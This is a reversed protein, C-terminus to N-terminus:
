PWKPDNSQVRQGTRSDEVIVYVPDTFGWICYESVTNSTSYREWWGPLYSRSSVGLHACYATYTGPDFDVLEILMFHCNASTCDSSVGQASRGKSLRGTPNRVPPPTSTASPEVALLPNDAIDYCDDRSHRYYDDNGVDLTLNSWDRTTPGQYLLDRNDDDVHQSGEYNPACPEVAGLLHVLEHRVIYTAGGPWEAEARPEIDCYAIPIVVAHGTIGDM